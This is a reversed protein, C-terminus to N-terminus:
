WPYEMWILTRAARFGIAQLAESAQGNPYNLALNREPRLWNRAQRMLAAIAEVERKPDAALWLRDSELTSSQWSLVGLLKRNKVASWQEVQRSSLARELAGRWGPQLIQPELPLHWRLDAPYTADLWKRQLNWDVGSAKRVTAAPAPLPTLDPQPHMRWSTRRMKEVFGMEKYLKVAPPNDQDVQLWTRRPGRREVDELAAKTLAHAIGRRRHDPHVAVNAILFLREAGYTHPLLSLNGVLRGDEQWVFGGLPLDGRGNASLDLLPGSRAAQRMQRIYLRGDADLSTAFCLEVLDAVASLDSRIDFPRLNAPLERQISIAQASM